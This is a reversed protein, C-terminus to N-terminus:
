NIGIAARYLAHTHPRQSAPIAPEFGAPQISTQRSHTNHKILNLDSSQASWEDLPTGSRTTHEILTTAFGLLPLGHNPIPDFGWPSYVKNQLPFRTIMTQRCWKDDLFIFLNHQNESIIQTGQMSEGLWLNNWPDGPKNKVNLQSNQVCMVFSPSSVCACFSPKLTDPPYRILQELFLCNRIQNEHNWRDHLNYYIFGAHHLEAPTKNWRYHQTDLGWSWLITFISLQCGRLSSSM